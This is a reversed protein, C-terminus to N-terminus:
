SKKDCLHSNVCTNIFSPTKQKLPGVSSVSNIETSSVYGDKVLTYTEFSVIFLINNTSETIKIESFLAKPHTELVFFPRKHVTFILFSQTVHLHM